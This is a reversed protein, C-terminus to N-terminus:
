RSTSSRSRAQPRRRSRPPIRSHAEALADANAPALGAYSPTACREGLDCPRPDDGPLRQRPRRPRHVDDKAQEASVAAWLALALLVPVAIGLLLAVVKATAGRDPDPRTQYAPLRSSAHTHWRLEEQNSTNM